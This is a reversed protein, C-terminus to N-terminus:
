LAELQTLHSLTHGALARLTISLPEEGREPHVGIRSLQTPSLGQCLHLNWNRGALFTALAAETDVDRYLGIWASEDYSQITYPTQTLIQRARVAVVLEADALHALVQAGTWKGPGYPRQLGSAGLRGVVAGVQDRGTALVELTDREGVRALLGELYSRDSITTM